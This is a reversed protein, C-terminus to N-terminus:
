RLRDMSELLAKDKRIGRSALWLFLSIFLPTIQGIGFLKPMDKIHDVGLLEPSIIAYILILFAWMYLLRIVKLQQKMKRFQFITIITYTGGALAAIFGVIDDKLFTVGEKFGEIQMENVFLPM